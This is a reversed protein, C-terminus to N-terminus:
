DTASLFDEGLVLSVENGFDQSASLLVSWNRRIAPGIRLEEIRVAEVPQDGPVAYMRAASADYRPLMMRTAASRTIFSREAGSDLLISIKQGNIEGDIIPLNRELRVPWEEVRMLKCDQPGAAASGALAASVALFIWHKMPGM